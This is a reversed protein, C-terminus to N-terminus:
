GRLIKNYQKRLFDFLDDINRHLEDEYVNMPNTHYGKIQYKIKEKTIEIGIIKVDEIENHYLIVFKDDLNYKPQM